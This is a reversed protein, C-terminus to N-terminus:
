STSQPRVRTGLEPSDNFPVIREGREVGTLVEVLGDGQLGVEVSRRALRGDEIVAVWPDSTGLGRVAEALLVAAGERSGAAINVSLTMDTLLYAPANTTRLRVEVTGQDPDVVPAIFSVTAEFVSDPYADPSAVARAGVRLLGLNEESPQVVLETPGDSAFGILVRGPQVADGPEVNRSLIVGSSPAEIRALAARAAAANMAARARVIGSNSAGEGGAQAARLRSEADAARQEAQELQQQTRAGVEYVARIRSLDRQAQEAELSLQELNAAVGARAESLAAQAQEVAARAERDDLLVLIDGAAVRDGERVRVERVVGGITAGLDARSPARVRGVLVLKRSIDKTELTVTQVAVPLTLRMTFLVAAVLAIVVLVARIPHGKLLSTPGPSPETM